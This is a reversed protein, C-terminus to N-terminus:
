KTSANNNVTITEAQYNVSNNGNNQQMKITKNKINEKKCYQAWMIFVGIVTFVLTLLAIENGTM